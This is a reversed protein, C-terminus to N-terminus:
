GVPGLLLAPAPATWTPTATSSPTSSTSRTASRTTPSPCCRRTSWPSRWRPAASRHVTPGPSRSTSRRDVARARAADDRRSARHRRAHPQRGPRRPAPGRPTPRVPRSTTTSGATTVSGRRGDPSISGCRRDGPGHRRDIDLDLVASGDTSSSRGPHARHRKRQARDAPRPRRRVTRDGAARRRRRHRARDDDPVITAVEADVTRSPVAEAGACGAHDARHPQRRRRRRAVTATIRYRGGAPPHRVRVVVPKTRPACRASRPTSTPRPWRATVSSRSWAPRRHGHDRRGAVATGDIDTVVAEVVCRSARASSTGTAGCGSTSSRRTSWCTSRDLRVGPPQRGRGAANATVFIPQDPKQGAFDVQLVHRGGADTRADYTFSETEQPVPMCCARRGSAMDSARVVSGGPRRLRRRVRWGPRRRSASPSPRGTRRPTPPTRQHHGALHDTCRAAGRRRLLPRRGRGAGARHSTRDPEWPAPISRSSRDASSRSRSRTTTGAGGRDGLLLEVHAEGLAAATPCRRGLDRLRGARSARRGRPWSTGSRTACRTTSPATPASASSGATVTSTSGGSGARSRWSTAPVSCVGATSPTGAPRAAPDYSQWRGSSDATLVASDDGRRAVLVEGGGLDISALGDGDTTPPTVDSGCRSGTSRHVPRSTPRGPSSVSTADALADIGISTAQVWAIAPRNNWYAEEDPDLDLNSEVTVVVHGGGGVVDTLELVTENLEAPEDIRVTREPWCRGTPCSGSIRRTGTASTPCTPASTTRRRGRLATVDLTENGTSVIPCSRNTSSPISPSSRARSRCWCRAPTGVEFRLTQDEGLTQGFEDRLDGSM